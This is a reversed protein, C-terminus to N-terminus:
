EGRLKSYVVLDHWTGARWQAKRAVGERTFGAKELARQEAVNASDTSAEVRMGTYTSFLYDAFLRQAETGYGKGRHDPSLTIGINYAQSGENPGYAVQHYSVSGVVDETEREVVVLTGGRRDLLGNKDFEAELRGTHQFGFTNYESNHAPDNTWKALLPLDSRDVPRLYVAQEQTM